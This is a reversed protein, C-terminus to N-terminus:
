KTTENYKALAEDISTTAADLAPGVAGVAASPDGLAITELMTREIDRFKDYPGILPGPFDPSLGKMSDYATTIWQGRQSAAWAPDENLAKQASERVPLYSGENTWIM